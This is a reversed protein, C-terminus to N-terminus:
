NFNFSSLFNLMFASIQTQESTAVTGSDEPINIVIIKDATPSTVYAASLLGYNMLYEDPTEIEPQVIYADLGNALNQRVYKNIGVLLGDPDINTIFWTDLGETNDIVDIYIEDTLFTSNPLEIRIVIVEHGITKNLSIVETTRGYNPYNFSLNTTSDGEYESIGSIYAKIPLKNGIRKKKRELWIKGKLKEDLYNTPATIKVTFNIEEGRRINNFESPNIEIFPDIKKSAVLSATKLNKPAKFTLDFERTESPVLETKIKKQSWINKYNKYKRDEKCVRDQSDRSEWHDAKAISALAIFLFITFSTAVIDVLRFSRM